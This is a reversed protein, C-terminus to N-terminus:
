RALRAGHQERRLDKKDDDPWDALLGDLPDPFASDEHRTLTQELAGLLEEVVKSLSTHNAEAYEQGFRLTDPALSLNAPRKRNSESLLAPM